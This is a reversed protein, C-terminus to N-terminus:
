KDDRECVSACVSAKLDIECGRLLLLLPLQRKRRRRMRIMM